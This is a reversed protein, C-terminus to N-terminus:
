YTRFVQSHTQSMNSLIARPEYHTILARGRLIGLMVPQTIDAHLGAVRPANIPPVSTASPPQTADTASHVLVAM